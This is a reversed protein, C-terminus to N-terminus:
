ARVMGILFKIMKKHNMSLGTVAKLKNLMNVGQIRQMKSGDCLIGALLIIYDVDNPNERLYEKLGKVATDYLEDALSKFENVVDNSRAKNVVNSDDLMYEKWYIIEGYITDGAQLNCLAENLKDNVSKYYLSARLYHELKNPRAAILDSVTTNKSIMQLKPDKIIEKNYCKSVDKSAYGCNPCLEVNYHWLNFYLKAAESNPRTWANVVIEDDFSFEAGCIACKKTVIM